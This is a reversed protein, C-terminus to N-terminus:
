VPRWYRPSRDTMPVDFMERMAWEMAALEPDVVDIADFLCITNATLPRFVAWCRGAPRWEVSLGHAGCAERILKIDAM